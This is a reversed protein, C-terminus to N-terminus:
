IFLMKFKAMNNRGITFIFVNIYCQSYQNIFDDETIKLDFSEENVESTGYDTYISMNNVNISKFLIKYNIHYM